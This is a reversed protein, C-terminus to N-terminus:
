RSLELNIKPWLLPLSSLSGEYKGRGGRAEMNMVQIIIFNRPVVVGVSSGTSVVGDVAEWVGEDLPFGEVVLGRDLVKLILVFADVGSGDNSSLLDLASSMLSEGKPLLYLAITTMAIGANQKRIPATRRM